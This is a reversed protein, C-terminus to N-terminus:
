HFHAFNRFDASKAGGPRGAPGAPGFAERGGLRREHGGIGHEPGRMASLAEWIAVEPGGARSRPAVLERSRPRCNAVEPGGIRPRVVLPVPGTRLTTGDEPLLQTYEDNWTHMIIATERSM